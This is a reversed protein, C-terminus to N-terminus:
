ARRPQAPHAPAVAAPHGLARSPVQRRDRGVRCSSGLRGRRRRRRLTSGGAGDVIASRIGVAWTGNGARTSGASPAPTGTVTSRRTSAIHDLAPRAHGARSPRPRTCPTCWSSSRRRRNRSGVRSSRPSTSCTPSRSSRRSPSRTSTRASPCCPTGSWTSRSRTSPGTRRELGAALGCAACGRDPRWGQARHRGHSPGAGDRGIPLRAARSIRRGDARDRLQLLGPLQAPSPGPPAPPPHPCRRHGPGGPGPRGQRLRGRRHAQHCDRGLGDVRRSGAGGRGRLPPRPARRRARGRRPPRSRGTRGPHGVPHRRRGPRRDLEPVVFAAAADPRVPPRRLRGTRHGPRGVADDVEIAPWDSTRGGRSVGPRTPSRSGCRRAGAPSATTDRRSCSATVDPSTSCISTETSDTPALRTMAPPDRHLAPQHRRHAAHPRRRHVRRRRDDAPARRAPAPLGGVEPLYRYAAKNSLLGGILPVVKGFYISHGWRMVPNPRSPSTSCRSADARASRDPGARRADAATGRLEAARIRLHGRRDLRRPVPLALGDGHVLPADTRAAALMGFSLDVGIPRLGADTSTSACTVPAARSTSSSRGHPRARALPHRTRRWGVDMRFTMIRNVLDYRPAITDFM